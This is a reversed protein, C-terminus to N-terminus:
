DVEAYYEHLTTKGDAGPNLSLTIQRGSPDEGNFTISDRETVQGDEVVLREMVNPAVLLDVVVVVSPMLDGTHKIQPYGSVEIVNDEGYVFKAVDVDAAQMLAFAMTEAYETQVTRVKIGGFAKINTTSSDQSLEIGDETIHGLLHWGDGTLEESATTPAEVKGKLGYRIYGATLDLPSGVTVTAANPKAM